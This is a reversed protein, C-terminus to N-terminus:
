HRFKRVRAFSVENADFFLLDSKDEESMHFLEYTDLGGSGDGFVGDLLTFLEHAHELEKDELPPIMKDKAFPM